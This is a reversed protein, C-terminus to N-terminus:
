LSHGWENTDDVYQLINCNEIIDGLDIEKWKNVHLIFLVSGLTTGQPVRMM